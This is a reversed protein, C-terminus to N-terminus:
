AAFKVFADLKEPFDPLGAETFEQKAEALFAQWAADDLSTQTKQVWAQGETGLSVIQVYLWRKPGEPLAGDAYDAIMPLILPLLSDIINKMDNRRNQSRTKVVKHGAGIVG